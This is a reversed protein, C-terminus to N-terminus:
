GGAGHAQTALLPGDLGPPRSAQQLGAEVMLLLRKSGDGHHAAFAQAHAVARSLAV